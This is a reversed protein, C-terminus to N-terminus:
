IFTEPRGIKKLFSEIDHQDTVIEKKGVIIFHILVPHKYLIDTCCKLVGQIYM